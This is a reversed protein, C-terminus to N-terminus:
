YIVQIDIMVVVVGDYNRVMVNDDIGVMVAVVPEGRWLRATPVGTGYM